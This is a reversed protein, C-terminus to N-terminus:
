SNDPQRLIHHLYMLRRMIIIERFRTIGLELYLLETPVNNSCELIQQLLTEDIQELKRIDAETLGYWVESGYM